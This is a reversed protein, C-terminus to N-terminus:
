RPSKAGPSEAGAILERYLRETEPMPGVGLEAKLVQRCHQYHASLRDRQGLRALSIMLARHFGERCPEQVLGRRSVVAAEEFDGRDLHIDVIHGLVDFHSERLRAREEACWEAYLDEKLYDGRYLRAAEELSALADDRRGRQALRRAEEYRREFSECDIGISECDLAYAPGSVKVADGGVGSARLQERLFHTTVKLRERGRREDADPWLCAILYERHLAEHRHTVLIKLLTLAHRRHWRDIPLDRGHASLEFRGFTLVRLNGDAPALRAAEEQPRLLVIALAAAAAHGGRSVPFVLSGITAQVWRGDKHRLSCDPVNFPAHRAFCRKGECAPACLPAHDPLVAQLIAGCPQDLAEQRSYGLLSEARANWAVVRMRGDIALAADSARDVLSRLERM